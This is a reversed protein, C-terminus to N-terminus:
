RWRRSMRFAKKFAEFSSYHGIGFYGDIEAELAEYANRQTTHLPYLEHFRLFYGRRTLLALARKPITVTEENGTVLVALSVRM